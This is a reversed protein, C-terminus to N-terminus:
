IKGPMKPLLEGVLVGPVRSHIAGFPGRFQAVADPKPDWTEMHGAGGSLWYLIVSTDRSTSSARLRALDALSLGGLGLVGAQLFNRRTMGSRDSAARGLLTLM